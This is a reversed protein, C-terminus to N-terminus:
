PVSFKGEQLPVYRTELRLPPLPSAAYLFGLPVEASLSTNEFKTSSPESRLPLANRNRGGWKRLAGHHWVEWLEAAGRSAVSGGCNRLAGHHWVGWVEVEMGHHWVEWLWEKGM